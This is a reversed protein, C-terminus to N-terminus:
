PHVRGAAKKIDDKACGIIAGFLLTVAGVVTIGLRATAVPGPDTSRVLLYV